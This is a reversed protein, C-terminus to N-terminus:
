HVLASKIERKKVYIVIISSLIFVYLIFCNSNFSMTLLSSGRDSHIGVCSHYITMSHKVLRTKMTVLCIYNYWEKISTEWLMLIYFIGHLGSAMFHECLSLYNVSCLLNLYCSLIWIPAFLLLPEVTWWAVYFLFSIFYSLRYARDLVVVDGRTTVLIAFLFSPPIRLCGRPSPHPLTMLSRELLSPAMLATLLPKMAPKLM